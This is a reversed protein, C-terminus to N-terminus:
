STHCPGVGFLHTRKSGLDQLRAPASRICGDYERAPAVVKGFDLDRAQRQLSGTRLSQAEFQRQSEVGLRFMPIAIEWVPRKCGQIPSVNGPSRKLAFILESRM